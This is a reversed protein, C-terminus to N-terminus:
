GAHDQDGSTDPKPTACPNQPHKANAELWRQWQQQAHSVWSSWSLPNLDPWATKILPWLSVFLWPWNVTTLSRQGGKHLLGMAAVIMAGSVGSSRWSPLREALVAREHSAQTLLRWKMADRPRKFKTQQDRTM